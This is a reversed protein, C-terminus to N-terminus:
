RSFLMKREIAYHIYSSTMAGAVLEEKRVYIPQPEGDGGGYRMFRRGTCDPPAELASAFPSNRVM